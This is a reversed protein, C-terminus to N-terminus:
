SMYSSTPCLCMVELTTHIHQFYFVYPCLKFVYLCLKFYPCPCMVELATHIHHFFFVYPCLRVQLCLSMVKTLSMPVNGWTSHSYSSFLLCLSMAHSSSMPVYSSILVYVYLKVQFCLCMVELATHFHYFFCSMPVYGSITKPYNRTLTFKLVYCLSMVQCLSM